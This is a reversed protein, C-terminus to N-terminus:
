PKTGSPGATEFERRLFSFCPPFAGNQVQLTVICQQRAGMGTSHNCACLYTAKGSSRIMSLSAGIFLSAPFDMNGSTRKRKVWRDVRTSDLYFIRKVSKPVRNM